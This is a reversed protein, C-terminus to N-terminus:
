LERIRYKGIELITRNGILNNIDITNFFEKISNTIQAGTFYHPLRLILVGYHSKKTYIIISGFEIDKTILIAKNEKSFKAITKDSQGILDTLKIHTAEHGITELYDKTSCPMNEDLVFKM